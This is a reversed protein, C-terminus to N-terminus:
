VESSKLWDDLDEWAKKRATGWVLKQAAICKECFGDERWSANILAQLGCIPDYMFDTSIKSTHVSKMHSHKGRAPCNKNNSQCTAFALAINENWMSTLKARSKILLRLDTISVQSHSQDAQEPEFEPFRLLEYM